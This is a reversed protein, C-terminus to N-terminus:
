HKSRSALPPPPGRTQQSQARQGRCTSRFAGTFLVLKGGSGTSVGLRALHHFSHRHDSPAGAAFTPSEEEAEVVPTPVLLPAAPMMAAVLAMQLAVPVTSARYRILSFMGRHVFFAASLAARLRGGAQDDRALQDLRGPLQARLGSGQDFGALTLNAPKGMARLRANLSAAKGPVSGASISRQSCLAADLV